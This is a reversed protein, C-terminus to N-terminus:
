SVNPLTAAIEAARLMGEYYAANWAKQQSYYVDNCGHKEHWEEFNM